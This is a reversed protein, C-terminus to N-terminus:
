AALLRDVSECDGALDGRRAAANNIAAVALRAKMRLDISHGVIRNSFGDKIACLYVKAMVV